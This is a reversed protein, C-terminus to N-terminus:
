IYYSSTLICLSTRLVAPWTVRHGGSGVAARAGSGRAHWRCPPRRHRRWAPAMGPRPQLPIRPRAPTARPAVRPHRRRDSTMELNTLPSTSLPPSAIRPGPPHGLHRHHHLRIHLGDRALQGVRGRQVLPANRALPRRRDRPVPDCVGHRVGPVSLFMLPVSPPSTACRRDASSIDHISRRSATDLVEFNEPAVDAFISVAVVAVACARVGCM